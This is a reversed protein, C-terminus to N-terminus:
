SRAGNGSGRAALYDRINGHKFNLVPDMEQIEFSIALPSDDLIPQLFGTLAAFLTDGAAQRLELSRGHAIRLTLHVFANDPHGDAFRYAAHRVARTRIGALPFAEISAAAAHLTEILAPVDLRHDLNATYEITLHPM